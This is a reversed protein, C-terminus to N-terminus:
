VMSKSNILAIKDLRSMKKIAWERKMAASRSSFHESYVMTVPRRARTYKSSTSKTNNGEGNHEALRKTLNTTYGTYLTADACRVVYVYHSM